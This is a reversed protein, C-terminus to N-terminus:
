DRPRLRRLAEGAALRLADPTDGGATAELFTLYEADTYGLQSLARVCAVRVAASPDTMASRALVAKVEPRAAYRLDALNRAATMRVSPRLATAMEDELPRLEHLVARRLGEEADAREMVVTPHPREWSAPRTDGPASPPPFEVPSPVTVRAFGPEAPPTPVPAPPTVAVPMRPVIPMPAPRRDTAIENRPVPPPEVVPARPVVAPPLPLSSRVGRPSSPETLPRAAVPSRVVPPLTGPADAPPRGHSAFGSPKTFATRRGGLSAPMQGRIVLGSEESPKAAPPTVPQILKWRDAPKAPPTLPQPAPTPAAAPPVAPSAVPILTPAVPVPAPVPRAAVSAPAPEIAKWEPAASPVPVPPASAPIPPPLAPSPLLPLQAPPVYAPPPVAVAAQPPPVPPPPYNRPVSPAAAVTPAAPSAPAAGARPLRDALKAPLTFRQGSAVDQVDVLGEGDPFTSRKLVKLTRDPQGATRMLILPASEEPAAARVAPAPTTRTGALAAPTLPQAPAVAAWGTTVAAARLLWRTM